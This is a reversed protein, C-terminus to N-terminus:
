GPARWDYSETIDVNKDVDGVCRYLWTWCHNRGGVLWGITLWEQKRSDTPCRWWECCSIPEAALRSDMLLGTQDRGFWCHEACHYDNWHEAASTLGPQHRRQHVRGHYWRRHVDVLQERALGVLQGRLWVPSSRNLQLSHWAPSRNLPERGYTSARRLQCTM